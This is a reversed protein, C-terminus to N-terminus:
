FFNETVSSLFDTGNFYFTFLDIAAGSPTLDGVNGKSWKTGSGWIISATGGANNITELTYTSGNIGNTLNITYTGSAQGNFDAVASSGLNWDITASGGGISADNISTAYQNSYTGSFPIAASGLNDVGSSFPVISGQTNIGSQTLINLINSVLGTNGTATINIDTGAGINTNGTSANISVNQGAGLFANLAGNIGANGNQGTINCNGSANLYLDANNSTLTMYSGATINIQGNLNLANLDINGPANADINGNSSLNLNGTGSVNGAGGVITGNSTIVGGADITASSNKIVQGTAGNYIAIANDTAGAPGIVNGTGIGTAGSIKVNQGVTSVTVSGAGVLTVAGTLGNVSDVGVTTTGSLLTDVWLGSANIIAIKAVPGSLIQATSNGSYLNISM